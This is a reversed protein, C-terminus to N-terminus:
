APACRRPTIEHQVVVVVFVQEVGAIICGQHGLIEIIVDDEGTARTLVPAFRLQLRKQIPRM